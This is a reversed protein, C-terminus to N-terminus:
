RSRSDVLHQFLHHYESDTLKSHQFNFEKTTKLNSNSYLFAHYTRRDKIPSPEVKHATLQSIKITELINVTKSLKQM